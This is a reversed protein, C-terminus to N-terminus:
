LEEDDDELDIESLYTKEENAELLLSKGASESAGPYDPHMQYWRILYNEPIDTPHKPPLDDSMKIGYKDMNDNSFEKLSWKSSKSELKHYKKVHHCIMCLESEPNIKTPDYVYSDGKPWSVYLDCPCSIESCAGRYPDCDMEPVFEPPDRWGEHWNLGFREL